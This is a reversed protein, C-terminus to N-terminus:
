KRFWGGLLWMLLSLILSLLLCSALPFYFTFNERKIYIDGPLKGALPIKGGVLFLVGLLLFFIGLFLFLKGFPHLDAMTYQSVKTFTM